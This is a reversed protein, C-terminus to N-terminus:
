LFTESSNRRSEAAILRITEKLRATDATSLGWRHMGALPTRLAYLDWLPLDEAPRARDSGREAAELYRSTFLRSSEIGALWCLEYRMHAVDLLPDGLVADEWDLVGSIESGEWLLNGPWFDGHTLVLPARPTPLAQVFAGLDLGAPRNAAPVDDVALRRPQWPDLPLDAVPVRQIRELLGALAAPSPRDQTQGPLWSMWMGARPGVEVVAYPEPVPLGAALLGTHLEATNRLKEVQASDADHLVRLAARKSEGAHLYTVGLVEATVGSGLVEVGRLTADTLWAQLWSTADIM